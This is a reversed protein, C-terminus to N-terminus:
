DVDDRWFLGSNAVTGVGKSKAFRSSALFGHNYGVESHACSRCSRISTRAIIIGDALLSKQQQEWSIISIRPPAGQLCVNLVLDRLTEKNRRILDQTTPVVLDAEMAFFSGSIIIELRKLHSFDVLGRPSQNVFRMYADVRSTIALFQLKLALPPFSSPSPTEHHFTIDGVHLDRLGRCEGLIAYLDHSTGSLMALSTLSTSRLVCRMGSIVTKPVDGSLPHCLNTPFILEEIRDLSQMFRPLFRGWLHGLKTNIIDALTGPISCYFWHDYSATFILRKVYSSIHPSSRLLRSLAGVNKSVHISPAFFLLPSKWCDIHVTIHLSHFIHMQAIPTWARCVLACAELTSKGQHQDQAIEDIIIRTLETPVSRSWPQLARAVLMDQM